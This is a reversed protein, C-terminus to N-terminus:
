HQATKLKIFKLTVVNERDRESLVGRIVKTANSIEPIVRYQLANVRRRTREIEEAMLAASHELSSLELLLPVIEGMCKMVGDFCAPTRTLSYNTGIQYSSINIVPVTVSMVNKLTVDCSIKGQINKAETFIFSESSYVGAEILRSQADRIYQDIRARTARADAITALFARMLGDRKDKLLRHGKFATKLLRRQRLLEQRTPIVRPM